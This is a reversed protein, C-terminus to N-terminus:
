NDDLVSNLAEVWDPDIDGDFIIWNMSHSVNDGDDDRTINRAKASFLGDHWERTDDDIYGFLRSRPMSKPNIVIVDILRSKNTSSSMQELSRRLMQWITTKGSGSPGILVVGFRTQIQEYLQLIKEMQYENHILNNENFCNEMIEVLSDNLQPNMKTSRQNTLDTGNSGFVAEILGDFKLADTDVLKSKIQQRLTDIVLDIEMQCENSKSSKDMMAMRNNNLRRGSSELCAKITRLGWDYHKQQSMSGQAFEFWCPIKEGLIRTAMESFGEALSLFRVITKIEPVSM